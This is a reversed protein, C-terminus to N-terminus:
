FIYYIRFNRLKGVYFKKTDRRCLKVILGRRDVSGSKPRGLRHRTSIDSPQLQVDLANKMLNIAMQSCNEENSVIQLSSDSLVFFRVSLVSM